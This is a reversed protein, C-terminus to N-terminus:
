RLVELQYTDPEFDYGTAFVAQCAEILEEDYLTGAGEAVLELTKEVSLGERYPRDHSLAEVVDAMAVIRSPLGIEAGTLGYPYGSGDIREHHQLAVEAIPWPLGANKLIEHGVLAHRRFVELEEINLLRDSALVGHPISIKGIDHVEASQRILAIMKSDLEMHTAIATALSTVNIQHAGTFSDFYNLTRGLTSLTGGLAGQLQGVLDVHSACFEAEKAIAELNQVTGEDFAFAHRDFITLVARRNGIAFPVAMSSEFGFQEARERWPGYKPDHALDNVVQTNGIRLATGTPGRGIDKNGLVSWIGEYLFETAGASYVIEVEGRDDTVVYGISALAFGGIDALVDCLSQLFDAETTALMMLRNVELLLQQLHDQRIRETVDNFTGIVGKVRGDETLPSTTTNLWRRPQGPFDTGVVLNSTSEGTSLALLVPDEEAPFATGNERVTVGHRDRVLTGLILEKSQSLLECTAANCDIIVGGDDILMVGEALTDMFGTKLILPDLRRRPDVDKTIEGM